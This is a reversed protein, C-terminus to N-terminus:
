VAIMMLTTMSSPVDRMLSALRTDSLFPLLPPAVALGFHGHGAWSIYSKGKMHMPLGYGPRSASVM